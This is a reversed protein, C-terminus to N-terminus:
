RHHTRQCHGRQHLRLAVFEFHDGFSQGFWGSDSNVVVDDVKCFHRRGSHGSAHVCNLPKLQFVSADLGKVKTFWLRHVNHHAAVARDIPDAKRGTDNQLHVLVAHGSRKQRAQVAGASNGNAALADHIERFDWRRAHHAALVANKRRFIADVNLGDTHAFRLWHIYRNARVTIQIPGAARGAHNQRAARFGSHDFHQKRTQGFWGTDGDIVLAAIQVESFNGSGANRAGVASLVFHGSVVQRLFSQRNDIGAVRM